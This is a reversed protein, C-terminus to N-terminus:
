WALLTSGVEKISLSANYDRDITIDCCECKYIRDSLQLNEKINGCNSCIKSSPYWKDIKIFQKGSDELKYKLFNRFMGFGDDNLNKALKLTQAMARLNIDEVVVVDYNESLRYSIKHLWDLRQNSIKNQIKSIRKKQRIWNNSKLIKKSLKRQQKKLKEESKRYYKPYNAKRGESDVYFDHQSYDLGLINNSPTQREEVYYEILISINYHNKCDKSITAGKIISNQPLQRHNVFKIAEKLKPIKVSNDDIIAVTGNQNNTSFSNQNKNKSKFNPMGKLDKFTLERGLTKVQKKAKKIYTKGDSENNYKKIADRFDLQVNAFALSDIEKMYDYDKKITAPTPLKITKYVIKGNVFNQKELQTYLIEVYTNYMKRSCGFARELYISQKKNPKLRFKYGKNKKIM